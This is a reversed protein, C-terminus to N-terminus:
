RRTGHLILMEQGAQSLGGVSDIDIKPMVSLAAAHESLRPFWDITRTSFSTVSKM